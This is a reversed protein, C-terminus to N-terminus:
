DTANRRSAIYVRVRVTRGNQGGVQSSENTANRVCMTKRLLQGAGHLARLGHLSHLSRGPRNWVAREAWTATVKSLCM